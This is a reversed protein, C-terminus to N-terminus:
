VKSLCHVVELRHYHFKITYVNIYTTNKHIKIDHVYSWSEWDLRSLVRVCVCAHVCTSVCVCVCVSGKATLGCVPVKLETLVNNYQFESSILSIGDDGINPNVYFKLVRLLESGTIITILVVIV